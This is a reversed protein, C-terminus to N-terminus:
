PRVNQPPTVSFKQHEDPLLITACLGAPSRNELLLEGGHAHVCARSISLGLGLGGGFRETGKSQANLRVFPEFAREILEEAIGPGSDLIVISVWGPNRSLIVTADGAYTLANEILNSLVRKIALPRCSIVIDNAGQGSVSQGRQQYRQILDSIVDSLNCPLTQEQATEDRIFSLTENVMAQLDSLSELMDERTDDCELLEIQLRLETLPTNLDHSMSALMRTKGELHRALRQQMLNFSRTLDQSERPGVLPLTGSWDGRSIADTAAALQRIPRVVRYTFYLSLLLLPVALAILALTVCKVWAFGPESPQM